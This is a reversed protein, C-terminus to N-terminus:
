WIGDSGAVVFQDFGPAPEFEVVIPTAIVGLKSAMEDGISRSMALGPLHGEQEWIRYPGIPDGYEDKLRLIRGGSKLIRQKEQHRNPKQDVTLQISELFRIPRFTRRYKGCKKEEDKKGKGKKEGSHAEGPLTALVARSDGVSAAVIHREDM